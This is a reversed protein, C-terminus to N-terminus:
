VALGVAEVVEITDDSLREKWGHIKERLPPECEQRVYQTFVSPPTTPRASWSLSSSSSRGDDEPADTSKRANEDMADEQQAGNGGNGANSGHDGANSKRTRAKKTLSESPPGSDSPNSRKSKRSGSDSESSGRQLKSMEFVNLALRAYMLAELVREPLTVVAGHAAVIDSSNGRIVYLTPEENCPVIVFEGKDFSHSNLDARLTILNPPADIIENGVLPKLHHLNAALWDKEAHPLLYSAHLHTEAGTVLCRGDTLKVYDAVKDWTRTNTYVVTDTTDTSRKLKWWAPLEAPMKWHRFDATLKYDDKYSIAGGPKTEAVFFYYSGPLVTNTLEARLFNDAVDKPQPLLAGSGGQRVFVGTTNGTLIQAIELVLFYPLGGTPHGDVPTTDLRAFNRSLGGHGSFLLIPYLTKTELRPPNHVRHAFPGALGAMFLPASM